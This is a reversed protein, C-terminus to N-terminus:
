HFVNCRKSCQGTDVNDGRGVAMYLEHISSPYIGLAQGLEWLIWRATERLLGDSFVATAVLDDVRERLAAEDTITVSDGDVQVAGQLHAILEKVTNAKM